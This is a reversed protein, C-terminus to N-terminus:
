CGLNEAVRIETVFAIRPHGPCARGLRLPRHRRMRKGAKPELKHPRASGRPIVSQCCLDNWSSASLSWPLATSGVSRGSRDTAGSPTACPRFPSPAIPSRRAPPNLGCTAVSRSDFAAALPLRRSSKTDQQWPPRWFGSKPQLTPAGPVSRAVSYRCRCSQASSRSCTRPLSMPSGPVRPIRRAPGQIRSDTAQMADSVDAYEGRASHRNPPRLWSGGRGQDFFPM